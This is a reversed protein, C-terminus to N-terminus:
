ERKYNYKKLSLLNLVNNYTLLIFLIDSKNKNDKNIFKNNLHKCIFKFM